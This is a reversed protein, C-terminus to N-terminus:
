LGSVVKAVLVGTVITVISLGAQKVIDVVQSGEAKFPVNVTSGEAVKPYFHFFFLNKTRKSKGNAYQVFIRSKWPRRGYGGAKDVYYLLNTHEKDFTLKLPSQVTGKVSVFPNIEPVFIIDGEQLIIDYKSEKYKLAKFLDISVPEQSVENISAQASDLIIGGLSDTLSNVHKTVNDRFYQTKKRYLIAGSLDANEKIGGAREIYSSLREYKGLRPYPGPYKILGNIQVLEQLEFTPNKRVYIQDYPKLVINASATDIDLNPSVKIQKLIVRTPTQERKASDLDLVSAIEIRGYEASQKLGGALYLLDQLTMGGYKNIKGEKRVEGFIEVYQRDGFQNNNFLLIQDNTYIPVNFISATDNSTIGSLNVDVRSTKINTSDGGGRFIYARPLYTNRTIGGARNILDFLRDGKRIEYQGPYSIEGKIEVKNLLGPNVAIVKVIDGDQLDFDQDRLRPDNTPNVIATANVDKITQQELETRYVKVGSSFADTQLGGSFKLLAKMGEGDKLQYYMPRRFRGEAKVRKKVTQVIVFDNNELYIHKGFDGTTLYKYVDLQDIVRGNRKILIDRLDALDTPGGALAIVNFANTFASVTVPGQKNVEGAVNISVTRPQGLSVTINTTAPVYSKFRQIILSRVQEFTLGQLYIKGLGTPFISGDRAVTYDLTAEAGNWLSVIIQDYVGIPYDLPPTSLDTITAVAGSRFLQMGYTTETVNASQPTSEKVLSDTNIKKALAGNLEAGITSKPNPNKDALVTKLQGPDMQTPLIPLNPNNPDVPPQSQAKSIFVLFILSFILLLKQIYRGITGENVQM